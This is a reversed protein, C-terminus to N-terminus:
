AEVARKFSRGPIQDRLCDYAKAAQEPAGGSLPHLHGATNCKTLFNAIQKRHQWAGHPTNYTIRNMWNYGHLYLLLSPSLPILQVGPM